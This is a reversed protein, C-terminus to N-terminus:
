SSGPLAMRIEKGRGKSAAPKKSQQQKLMDSEKSIMIKLMLFEKYPMGPLVDRNIGFKESFNGLTCFKTVAECADVVGRSSKSFLLACQKNIVEEEDESVEVSEEFKRVLADMLPAPVRGVRDYCRDTMWGSEDREIPIDISWDLLNRKVILRKYENVDTARATVMRGSPGKGIDVTYSTATEIAYNDGFTMTAFIAKIEEEGEPNPMYFGMNQTARIRVIVRNPDFLEACQKKARQEATTNM